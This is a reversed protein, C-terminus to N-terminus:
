DWCFRKCLFKGLGFLAWTFNEDMHKARNIISCRTHSTVPWVVNQRFETFLVIPMWEIHMEQEFVCCSPWMKYSPNILISVHIERLNNSSNTLDVVTFFCDARTWDANGTPACLLALMVCCSSHPASCICHSHGKLSIWRYCLGNLPYQSECSGKCEIINSIKGHFRTTQWDDLWLFLVALFYHNENFM